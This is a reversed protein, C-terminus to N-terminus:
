FSILAILKNECFELINRLTPREGTKEWVDMQDTLLRNKGPPQDPDPYMRNELLISCTKSTATYDYRVKDEGEATAMTYFHADCALTKFIYGIWDKDHMAMYENFYDQCPKEYEEAIETAAAWPKGSHPWNCVDDVNIGEEEIVELTLINTPKPMRLEIDDLDNFNEWGPLDKTGSFLGLQGLWHSMMMTMVEEDSTQVGPYFYAATTRANHQAAKCFEDYTPIPLKVTVKDGFIRRVPGSIVDVFLGVIAGLSLGVGFVDASVQLAQVLIAKKPFTKILHKAYAIRGKKSWPDIGTKKQWARKAEIGPMGQKGVSQIVNLANAATMIVGTPLAIAAAVSPPSFRMAAFGAAGITFLCDQANDISTMFSGVNTIVEPAPSALMALFKDLRKKKYKKLEYLRKESFEKWRKAKWDEEEQATMPKEIPIKIIDYLGPFTITYGYKAVYDAKLKRFEEKTYKPITFSATWDPMINSGKAYFFRLGHGATRDSTCGCAM